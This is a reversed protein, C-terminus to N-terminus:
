VGPRSCTTRRTYLEFAARTVCTSSRVDMAVDFTWQSRERDPCDMWNDRMNVYLTRQAKKWLTTLAPVDCHFAGALETAYGSEFYGVVLGPAGHADDGGAGAGAGAGAGTSSVDDVGSGALLLLPARSDVSYIVEHGVMWGPSEYVGCTAASPLTGVIYAARTNPIGLGAAKATTTADTFYSDMRIDIRVGQVLM